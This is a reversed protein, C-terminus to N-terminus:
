QMGCIDKMHCLAKDLKNEVAACDQKVKETKELKKWTKKLVNLPNMHAEGVFDAAKLLQKATKVAVAKRNM